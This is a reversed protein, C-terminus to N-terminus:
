CAGNGNLVKPISRLLIRFYLGASARRVFLLDLRRRRAYTLRSRGMVQWLGSLGPRLTLIEAADRGYFQDFESRTIPRPGILSMEGRMVHYLQPLEDLSHRRCWAAFRSTVRPDPATKALPVFDAVEEVAALPNAGTRRDWMTRFKLMPLPAGHWGMRRHRVLPSRRSLIGIVVALALLVPALLLLAFGALWPEVLYVLRLPPNLPKATRALIGPILITAM